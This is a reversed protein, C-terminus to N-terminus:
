KIQCFLTVLFYVNINKFNKTVEILLVYRDKILTVALSKVDPTHAADQSLHDVVLGHEGTFVVQVLDALDLLHQAAGASLVEVEDGVGLGLKVDVTQRM